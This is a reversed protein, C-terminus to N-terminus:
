QRGSSSAGFRTRFIRHAASALAVVAGITLAWYGVTPLMQSYDAHIKHGFSGFSAGYLIGCLAGLGADLAVDGFARALSQRSDELRNM